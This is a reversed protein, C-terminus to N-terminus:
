SGRRPLRLSWWVILAIVLGVAIPILHQDDFVSPEAVDAQFAATADGLNGTVQVVFQWRGSQTLNVNAAYLLKNIAQDHTAPYLAASTTGVIPEAAVTVQADLLINQTDSREVLVSVDALGTRLPTPSTTVTLLYPGALLRELQTM